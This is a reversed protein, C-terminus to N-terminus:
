LRSIVDWLMIKSQEIYLLAQIQNTEIAANAHSRLQCYLLGQIQNTLLISYSIYSCCTYRHQMGATLEDHSQALAAIENTCPFEEARVWPNRGSGCGGQLHPRPALSFYVRIYNCSKYM